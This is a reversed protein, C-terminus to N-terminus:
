PVGLAAARGSRQADRSRGPPHGVLGQPPDEFLVCPGISREAGGGDPEAELAALPGLRLGEGVPGHLPPSGAVVEDRQEAAARDLADVRRQPRRQAEAEVLQEVPGAVGVVGRDVLRHRQRLAAAAAAPTRPEDVGDEAAGGALALPQQGPEAVAIRGPCRDGM